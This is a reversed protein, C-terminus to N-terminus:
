MQQEVTIRFPLGAKIELVEIIGTGLQQLHEFLDLHERKLAFDGAQLEPRPGTDSSGLKVDKIVRPPPDWVPEGARVLLRELRGYNTRQMTELLRKRPTSLSSRTM